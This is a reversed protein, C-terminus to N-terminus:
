RIWGLRELLNEKEALQRIKKRARMARSKVAAASWGTRQTVQEITCDEFYMLTLVLRDAIPLRNLLMHLIVAAADPDVADEDTKEVIDFDQLSLINKAKAQEKWFRCGVRTGIKKLWHLFPAKSKYTKLSIYAEVFVDQVLKECDTQNPAFRWMLRAIPQEYRQVLRRYADADGYLCAEIDDQDANKV